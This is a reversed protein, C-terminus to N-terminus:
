RRHSATPAPPTFSPHLPMVRVTKSPCIGKHSKSCCLKTKCCWPKKWKNRQLATQAHTHQVGPPCLAPTYWVHEMRLWPHSPRPQKQVAKLWTPYHRSGAFLGPQFGEPTFSSGRKHPTHTTALFAIEQILGYTLHAVTLHVVNEM